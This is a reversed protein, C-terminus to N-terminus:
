RKSPRAPACADGVPVASVTRQQQGLYEDLLEWFRKVAAQEDSCERLIIEEWGINDKTNFRQYIWERFDALFRDPNDPMLRCVAHEYGLLFLGLRTLSTSGVYMGLKRTRMENLVDLIQSM